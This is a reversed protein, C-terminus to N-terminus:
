NEKAQVAQRLETEKISTPVPETLGALLPYALSLKGAPLKMVLEHLQDYTIVNM